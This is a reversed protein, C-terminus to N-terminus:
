KDGKDKKNRLVAEDIAFTITNKTVRKFKQGPNRRCRYNLCHANKYCGICACGCKQTKM